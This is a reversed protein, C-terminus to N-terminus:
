RGLEKKLSEKIKHELAAFRTNAWHVYFASLLISAVIIAYAVPIGIAVVSGGGISASFWAPAYLSILAFALYLAVLFAVLALRLSQRQRCLRQFRPDKTISQADYAM